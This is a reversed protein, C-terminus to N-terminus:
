IFNETCSCRHELCSSNKTTLNAMGLGKDNTDQHLRENGTTPKFIKEIGVKAYFEGLLFKMRDYPLHHFLQV